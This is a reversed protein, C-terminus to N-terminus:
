REAMTKKLYSAGGQCLDSVIVCYFWANVFVNWTEFLEQKGENQVVQVAIRLLIGLNQNVNLLDNVDVVQIRGWVNNSIAKV